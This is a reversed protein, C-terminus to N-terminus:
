ARAQNYADFTRRFYNEWLGNGHQPLDRLGDFLQLARERLVFYREVHGAGGDAASSSSAQQIMPDLALRYPRGADAREWPCRAPLRVRSIPPALRVHTRHPTARPAGRAFCSDIFISRCPLVSQTLLSAWLKQVATSSHRFCSRYGVITEVHVRTRRRRFAVYAQFAFSCHFHTRRESTRFDVVSHGWTMAVTRRLKSRATGRVGGHAALSRGPSGHRTQHLPELDGARIAGRGELDLQGLADRRHLAALALRHKRHLDLRHRECRRTRHRCHLAAALALLFAVLVAGGGTLILRTRETRVINEHLALDRVHLRLM